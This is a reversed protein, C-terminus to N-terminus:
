ILAPSASNMSFAFESSEIFPIIRVPAPLDKMAPASIESNPFLKSPGSRLEVRLSM